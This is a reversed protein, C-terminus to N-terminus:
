PRNRSLFCAKFDVGGCKFGKRMVKLIGDREVADNFFTIFKKETNNGYAFEFKKWAKPQTKKIFEIFTDKFLACSPDYTADGKKYGGAKSIFFSEIDAEFNKEKTETIAM